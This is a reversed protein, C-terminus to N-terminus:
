LRNTSSLKSNPISKIPINPLYACWKKKKKGEMKKRKHKNTLLFKDQRDAKVLESQSHLDSLLNLEESKRFFYFTISFNVFTARLGISNYPLSFSERRM